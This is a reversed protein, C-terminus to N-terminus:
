SSCPFMLTELGIRRNGFERLYLGAARTERPAGFNLVSRVYSPARSTSAEAKWSRTQALSSRRQGGVHAIILWTFEFFKKLELFTTM